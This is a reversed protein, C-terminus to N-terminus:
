ADSTTGVALVSHMRGSTKYLPVVGLCSTNLTLVPRQSCFASRDRYVGGACVCVCVCVGQPWRLWKKVLACVCACVRVGVGVGLCVCGPAVSAVKEGTRVCACVCSCVCVGVWGGVGVGVCM